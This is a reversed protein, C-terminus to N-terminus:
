GTGCSLFIAFWSMLCYILFCSKDNRHKSIGEAYDQRIKREIKCGGSLPPLAIVLTDPPGRRKLRTVPVDPNLVRNLKYNGATKSRPCRLSFHFFPLSTARIYRLSIRPKTPTGFNGRIGNCEM